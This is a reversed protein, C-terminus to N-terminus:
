SSRPTTAALSARPTASRSTAIRSRSSACRARRAAPTRISWSTSAPGSAMILQSWVGFLVDGSAAQNSVLSGYGNMSGNSEMIFSPYGSVKQAAKLAGRMSANLIYAMSGIDGNASTVATELSIVEAFTPTAAAFNKEQNGGALLAKLGTPQNSAGSGYLAVRDLELAIVAALDNRVFNEVDISSQLLLKRSYDTFAGVTKPSMNVQGVTQQGETPSGSEAVWYATTAGTQKPIQINGVLGSLTTAGAQQVVSKNRLLEIFSEAHLENAVTNGGATSVGVTLDRRMRHRLMDVPVMLGRSAKGTKQAAAESVELEFKARERAQRDNPNALYALAKIWSYERKDSESMGVEAENGTLAVQKAGISELFAARSEDISKGGEILQRALDKKAFKEGLANIAGVRAREEAAGDAKAKAAAAAAAEARKQEEDMSREGKGMKPVNIRVDIKEDTESRGMGVSQDAPISVFSVEYPM